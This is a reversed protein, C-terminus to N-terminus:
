SLYPGFAGKVHDSEDRDEIVLVSFKAGGPAVRVLVHGQSSKFNDSFRACSLAAAPHLGLCFVDPSHPSLMSSYLNALTSMAPHSAHWSQLIWVKPRVARVFEPGTADFYGHHNCTSVSVPGAAKGAPTEVDRWLARGYNTDSCLDGGTFYSFDGYNVRLAISCSNETARHSPDLGRQDLGRQDPFQALSTEEAGSWVHGNGALIRVTSLPQSHPEHIQHSSGVQVQEVNTGSKAISEIFSRYNLTTPDTVPAPYDYGPYGRDILKRIPTAEAVDSIGTLKYDGLASKPSKATVDGIHDGHLHTLLAYDLGARGSAKLQRAIYRAIWQGPRLSSDPRAACM